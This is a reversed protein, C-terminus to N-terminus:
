RKPCFLGVCWKIRCQARSRTGGLAKSVASWFVDQDASRGKDTTVSKVAQRLAAEEEASWKGTNKTDRVSVHNRWRDRCDSKTRDVAASVAGWNM